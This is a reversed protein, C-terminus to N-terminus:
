PAGAKAPAVAPVALKAIWYLREELVAAKLEADHAVKANAALEQDHQLDKVELPRVYAVGVAGVVVVLVSMWGAIASWNTRSSNAQSSVIRDLKHNLESFQGDFKQEMRANDRQLGELAAEVRSVRGHVREHERDVGASDQHQDPM